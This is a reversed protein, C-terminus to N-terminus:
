TAISFSSMVISRRCFNLKIKDADSYKICIKPEFHKLFYTGFKCKEWFWSKQTIYVVISCVFPELGFNAGSIKRRVCTTGFIDLSVLAMWLCIRGHILYMTHTARCRNFWEATGAWASSIGRWITSMPWVVSTALWEAEKRVNRRKKLTQNSNISTKIACFLYIPSIKMYVLQM